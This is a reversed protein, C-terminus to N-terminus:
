GVRQMEAPKVTEDWEGYRALHDYDPYEVHGLHSTYGTEPEQYKKILLQFQEWTDSFFDKDLPADRYFRKVESVRTRAGVSIYATKRVTGPGHDQVGDVELIKALLPMQKACRKIDMEGPIRGSKYDYLVFEGDETIDVRDAKGRITFGLDSFEHELKIEQKFPSALGRRAREHLLFEEAIKKLGCLWVREVWKSPAGDEFEEEAISILRGKEDDGLESEGDSIFRQFVSHQLLGKVLIEPLPALPNLKRLKLVQSAYIAYPDVILTEVGTVSIRTPRAELPPVPSPRPAPATKGNQEEMAQALALLAAGRDRMANIGARGEESIGSLLHILRSLWRSPITPASEDRLTRTLVVEPGCLVQQFDHASLGIKREPLLLGAQERMQRNLWPDDAVPAPWSGENLRGAILLDPRRMRAELTGWIMIEPHSCNSSRIKTKGLVSGLLQVYEKLELFCGLDACDELETFVERVKSGEEEAWLMGTDEASPGAAFMEALSRHHKLIDGLEGRKATAASEVISSVWGGWLDIDESEEQELVWRSVLESDVSFIGKGRLHLELELTRKLHLDRDGASNACPSKLLSMLSTSAMRGGMAEAVLRAFVGRPTESVPQGDSEYPVIGWRRLAAKVQRALNRDPTVLAATRSAHACERLKLAVAVSELRPTPAELLTLKQTALQLDALRPGEVLWQDTVPAPRLALSVLMNRPENVAVDSRWPLVADSEIGLRDMLQRFRFQPHAESVSPDSMGSWIEGSLHFDFCPLVIAGQPLNAIAQMLLQTAGRSGTSGAMILPHEPPEAQWDSVMKEAVLRQRTEFDPISDIRLYQEIIRLFKLSADWHEAQSSVDLNGLADPSVGESNMEDMVEALTDALEFATFRSGFRDDAAMLKAVAQFLELRRRLPPVAAPIEPFRINSRLETLQSLRPLFSAEGKIFEDRIAQENHSTNVIIETQAMKEPPQDRLRSKLGAVFEKPFSCGPPLAFVRPHASPTFM